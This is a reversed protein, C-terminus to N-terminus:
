QGQNGNWILEERKAREEEIDFGDLEEPELERLGWPNREPDFEGWNWGVKFERPLVLPDIVERELDFIPIEMAMAEDMAKIVEAVREPKCILVLEDHIQLNVAVEEDEKYRDWLRLLARNLTHTCTSQPYFSYAERFTSADNLRGTFVRPLGWADELYGQKLLLERTKAHFVERVKPYVRHFRELLEKAQRGSVDMIKAMTKWSMDYNSNGTPVIKGNRRTLFFGTSTTFCYVKGKYPEIKKRLTRWQTVTLKSKTISVRAKGRVVSRNMVSEYGLLKRITQLVEAQDRIQELVTLLYLGRWEEYEELYAQLMEAPWSLLSYNPYNGWELLKERGEGVLTILISNSWVRMEYNFGCARILNEVKAAREQRGPGTFSFSGAATVRKRAHYAGVLKALWINIKDRLEEGHGPSLKCYIPLSMVSKPLLSVMPMPGHVTPVKHDTTCKLSYHKGEVEVMYGDYDIEHFAKPVEFWVHGWEDEWVAIPEGDWLDIPIWGDPTLVEHEPHLCAHRIRKGLQRMEKTVKGMPVGFMMSATLKHIDTGELFAKKAVEDNCRWAVIRAEAGGYDASVMVWGEFRPLYMGRFPKSRNQLNTGGKWLPEGSSWRASETGAVNYATHVAGTWKCTRVQLEKSVISRLKKWELYKELWVKKQGDTKKILVHIADERVSPKGQHTQVPLKWKEYLLKKLQVPSNLNIPGAVKTLEAGLEELKETVERLMEQRKGEDLRLGLHGMFVAPELERRKQEWYVSWWGKEKLKRELVDFLMLTNACDLANYTWEDAKRMWKWAPVNLWVSACFELSKPQDAVLIHHMIMTDHPAEEWEIGFEGWLWSLDFGANHFICATPRKQAIEGLLWVIEDDPEANVAMGEVALGIMNCRWRPKQEVEIDIAVKEWKGDLVGKAVEIWAKRDNLRLEFPLEDLSPPVMRGKLLLAVKGLDSQFPWGFTAQRLVAAPHYSAMVPFGDWELWYGRVASINLEPFFLQLAEKGLCLIVKPKRERIDEKVRRGYEEWLAVEKKARGIDNGPPRRWFRNAVRCDHRRIGFKSLVRFLLNGSSGVFPMGAREEAQGPAEGVIYLPGEGQPGIERGFGSLSM